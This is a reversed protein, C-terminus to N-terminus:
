EVEKHGYYKIRTPSISGSYTYEWKNITQKIDLGDVDVSFCTNGYCYQPHTSLFIKNDVLAKDIMLGKKLIIAKLSAVTCHYLRM